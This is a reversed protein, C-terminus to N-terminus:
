SQLESTHEESRQASSAEVKVGGWAKHCPLCALRVGVAERWETAANGGHAKDPRVPVREGDSPCLAPTIPFLVRSRRFSLRKGGGKCNQSRKAWGRAEGGMFVM